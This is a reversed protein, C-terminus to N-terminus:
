ESEPALLRHIEESLGVTGDLNTNALAAAAKRWLERAKDGAGQAASIKGDVVLARAQLLVVGIQGALQVAQRAYAEAAPLEGTLLRSEALAILIRSQVLREGIATALALAATLRTFVRPGPGDRRLEVTALGLLAYCQGVQDGSEQVMGLVLLYSAQAAELDGERAHLDGLSRHVQAGVRRNGTDACIAAARDLLSRAQKHDDLDIQLQSMQQLVHAEAIRDSILQFTGLAAEWRQGARVLNGERRDIVAANRLVLATGHIDGLAEYLEAARDFQRAALENQQQFMYLSGLSYRMTAEGRADNARCAARLATEHSTQWDALYSHAEFLAVTSQALDWCHEVLGTAAAQRIAALIAQREQEYWALPDRLLRDTVPSPLPWLKASSSTLLYNGAYERRHAEKALYLLASILHTLAERRHAPSEQAMLMERAFPRTIDHFRYRVPEGAPSPETDLLYAETLEEMLDEAERLGIDLLPAGVWSPFSPAESVALLRLLRKADPTLSDYSLSISARVRMEGHVLEDLRRSEDQLREVLDAVRWHPRAALRAAVIRLALPLNGCLRCLTQVADPEAAVREFGIIRGLLEAASGDSFAGVEHRAAGPLGTLRRRSTIIVTCQAGGPMLPGIQQESVADDLLVLVQRSALLDRYREAREDLTDPMGSGPVGLARLFRELIDSPAVPRDRVRLRAFLQGDPFGAAMQHAARVALTTKGVGGRGYVVNVSVAGFSDPSSSPGTVIAAVTKARGTFDPVSGPLQHPTTAAVSLGVPPPGYAAPEARPAPVPLSGELVAQHLRQLDQGPEIGLEEALCARTARYEELAEAQRGAYYLATILQQRLRERLPYRRTLRKLEGVLSDHSGSRLEIEILEQQALVHQENLAAVAEEVIQSPLGALAPGRWLALASRLHDAAAPEEGQDLHRQAAAVSTHFERVDFETDQLRLLYGPSRTVIMDSRDAPQLARRLGSVAIHIQARATHPPDEGWVADVLRDVSIVTDPELLLM